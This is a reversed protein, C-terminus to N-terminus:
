HWAGCRRAPRLVSCPRHATVPLRESAHLALHVPQAFHRHICADAYTASMWPTLARAITLASIAPLGMCSTSFQLPPSRAPSSSSNSANLWSCILTADHGLLDHLVDSPQMSVQEFAQLRPLRLELQQL